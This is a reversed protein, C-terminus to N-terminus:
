FLSFINEAYIKLPTAFLFIHFIYVLCITKIEDKMQYLKKKQKRIQWVRFFGHLFYKLGNKVIKSGIYDSFPGIKPIKITSIPDFINNPTDLM